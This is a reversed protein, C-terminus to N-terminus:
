GSAPCARRRPNEPKETAAEGGGLLAAWRKQWRPYDHLGNGAPGHDKADALLVIHMEESADKEVVESAEATNAANEPAPELPDADAHFCVIGIGMGFFVFMLVRRRAM